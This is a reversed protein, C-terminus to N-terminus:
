LVIIAIPQKKYKTKVNKETYM